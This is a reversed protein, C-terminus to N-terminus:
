SGEKILAQLRYKTTDVQQQNDAIVVEGGWSRLREQTQQSSKQGKPQGGQQGRQQGYLSRRFSSYTQAMHPAELMAFAYVAPLSFELGAPTISVSGGAKNLRPEQNLRLALNNPTQLYCGFVWELVYDYVDQIPEASL